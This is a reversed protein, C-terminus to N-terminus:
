GRGFPGCRGAHRERPPPRWLPKASDSQIGSWVAHILVERGNLV